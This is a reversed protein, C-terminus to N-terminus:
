GMEINGGNWPLVMNGMVIFDKAGSSPFSTGTLASRGTFWLDAIYGHRGRQGVTDAHYLGVSYIPLEASIENPLPFGDGLVTGAHTAPFITYMPMSSIPGLARWVAGYFTSFATTAYDQAVVCAIASNTWGTVPDIPKEFFWACRVLNGWAFFVRTSQGDTSQMAHVRCPFGQAAFSFGSILPTPDNGIAQEDAATPRNSADGGSFGVSPSFYIYVRWDGPGLRFDFLIQFNTNIQSQQLAIWSHAGGSHVVKTHDTLRDTADIGATTGDSSGVCTWANTAFGKLANKALLFMKDWDTEDVGSLGPNLNTAFQWTKQKTPLVGM